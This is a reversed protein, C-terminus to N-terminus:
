DSSKGNLYRGVRLKIDNIWSPDTEVPMRRVASDENEDSMCLELLRM